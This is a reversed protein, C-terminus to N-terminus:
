SPAARLGARGRERGDPLSVHQAGASRAHHSTEVEAATDELPHILSMGFGGNAQTVWPRQVLRVRGSAAHYAASVQYWVNRFLPRGSSVREEAGDSRGIRLCLTANEDIFLGFGTGDAENWKTLLGQMGLAPLTPYVYACLTFSEVNLREDHPM